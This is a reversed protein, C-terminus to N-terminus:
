ITFQKKLDEATLTGYKRQNYEALKAIEPDNTVEEVIRIFEKVVDEKDM